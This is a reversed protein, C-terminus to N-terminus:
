DVKWFKLSAPCMENQLIEIAMFKRAYVHDIYRRWIGKDCSEKVFCTEEMRIKESRNIKQEDSKDVGNYGYMM